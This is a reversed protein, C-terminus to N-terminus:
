LYENRIDFIVPNGLFMVSTTNNKFGVVVGTYGRFKGMKILVAKGM